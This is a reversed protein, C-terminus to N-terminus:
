EELVRGAHYRNSTVGSIYPSLEKIVDPSDITWVELPISANQCLSVAKESHDSADIFVYNSGNRLGLATEIARDSVTSTLFGVSAEPDMEVVYELLTSSFSIYCAKGQLGYEEVLNVVSEVQPRTGTKLELYPLLDIDRCLALFEELSPIKTGTFDAHKWGGFDLKRLEQFSFQAVVGTGDSTRDVKADHILVPVNDATFQIDTEVYHFGNLKSLRYAPLTNEPAEVCYGRHNIGRVKVDPDTGFLSKGFTIVEKNDFYFSWDEYGEVIGQLPEGKKMFSDIAEAGLPVDTLAGNRIWFGQIGLSLVPVTSVDVGIELGNSFSFLAIDGKQWARDITAKEKRWAALEDQLDIPDNVLVSDLETKSCGLSLLLLLSFFIQPKLVRVSPFCM